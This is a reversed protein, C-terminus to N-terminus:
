SRSSDSSTARPKHAIQGGVIGGGVIGFFGLLLFWGLNETYFYAIFGAVLGAALGLVIGVIVGLLTVIL